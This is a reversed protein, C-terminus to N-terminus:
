AISHGRLKEVIDNALTSDIQATVPVVWLRQDHKLIELQRCKVADKETILIIDALIGAFPNESFDYHDPLPIEKFQLGAERLMSFFRSPNGIGAAAYLHLGSGNHQFPISHLDVRQSPDLLREAYMAHLIMQKTGSLVGESIKHANLVTFDRRRNVSERLPGAPLLWGNGIGRRDFLIIEIDRQLAYHQLGDDSILINVEPHAALLAKGAAVRNRGVVLPAETRQALLVPEDGVERFDSHRTVSKPTASKGGYGRVIIGPVYGASRLVETLWITFPTKGTGGVFINGVIIVPVPLVTTRLLGLRYFWSRLGVLFQYLLSLPWLIYALLGRQMWANMLFLEIKSQVNPM